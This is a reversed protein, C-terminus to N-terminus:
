FRLAPKGHRTEDIGLVRTPEPERLLEEAHAVFVRHATPWSVGHAIAVETVSRAAEGIAAGIQACL